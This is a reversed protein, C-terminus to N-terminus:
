LLSLQAAGPGPPRFQSTDLVLPGRRALRHRRCALAFRQALLEAYHGTGRQRRGFCADYVKGNRMQRIASMVHAAKMPHHAELWQAFLGALEHPLRLLVYGAAGAGASACRALIAELEHDNIFPIVPAVLVSVPIGAGALREIVALRRRPSAARPELTRKLEDDLTTVSVSVSVLRQAAMEGLIDLDREILSGKTIIALPHRCARLVELVSRTIRLSREVPQYPDTNAGIAIPKCRYGPRALEEELRVAADKKVFIQTEFDLGPSLDLYAHSPRAYCYVCGHECGKYPNISQDFSIDPSRNRTIIRRTPDEHLQTDLRAPVEPPTWGDDVDEVRAALYRAPPNSAAGRGRRVTGPAPPDAANPPWRRHMARAYGM